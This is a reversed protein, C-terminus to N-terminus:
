KRPRRYISLTEPSDPAVIMERRNRLNRLTDKLREAEDPWYPGFM